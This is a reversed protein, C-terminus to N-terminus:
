EEVQQIGFTFYLVGGCLLGLDVASLQNNPAPFPELVGERVVRAAPSWLQAGNLGEM